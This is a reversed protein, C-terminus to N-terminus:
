INSCLDNEFAGLLNRPMCFTGRPSVKYVTDGVAYEGRFNLVAAFAEEPLLSEYGFDTYLNVSNFKKRTRLSDPIEVSLIPDSNVISIPIDSCMSHFEYGESRTLNDAESSNHILNKLDDSSSFVKYDTSLLSAEVSPALEPISDAENCSELGWLLLILFSLYKFRM